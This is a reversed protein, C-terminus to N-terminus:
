QFSFNSKWKTKVKRMMEELVANFVFSSVPDGQKTGRLIEFDRSTTDCKIHARQGTYLKALMGVYARPVGHAFLSEWISGHSISDFAKKFDLTAIWLPVNYENCKEALLTIAFLHDDCSFQKRFGAQDHSQEACLRDEIRGCLM